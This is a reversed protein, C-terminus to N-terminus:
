LLLGEIAKADTEFLRVAQAGDKPYITKDMDIEFARALSAFLNKIPIPREVIKRGKEDTAGIVQGGRVGGGALAVSWAHPYHDRGRQGNLSPSRGFEGMWVVLTQDLLQHERLDRILASFGPDLRKLLGRTRPENNAHTDWGSLNVQVFPVGIQVLRRALLCSQGFINKSGYRERVSEKEKSLDLSDGLRSKLLKGAKRYVEEHIKSIKEGCHNERFNEEMAHLLKM